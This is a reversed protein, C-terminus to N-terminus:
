AAGQQYALARARREAVAPALAYVGRAARVLHGARALGQLLAAARDPTAHGLAAAVAAATAHGAEVAELARGAAPDVPPWGRAATEFRGREAARRAANRARLVKGPRTDIGHRRFCNEVASRSCGLKAAIGAATFVKRARWYTVEALMEADSRRDQFRWGQRTLAGNVSQRSRGLLKACVKAPQGAQRLRFLRGLEDATWPRDPGLKKGSTSKV